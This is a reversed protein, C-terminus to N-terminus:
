QTNKRIFLDFLERLRLNVHSILNFDNINQSPILAKEQWPKWLPEEEGGDVRLELSEDRVQEESSVKMFPTQYMKHTKVLREM